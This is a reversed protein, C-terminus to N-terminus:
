VQMYERMANRYRQCGVNRLMGEFDRELQQEQARLQSEHYSPQQMMLQIVNNTAAEQM